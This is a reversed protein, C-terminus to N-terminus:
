RKTYRIIPIILSIIAITCLLVDNFDRFDIIAKLVEFALFAMCVVSIVDSSKQRLVLLGGIIAGFAVIYDLPGLRFISHYHTYIKLIGIGISFIALIAMSIQAMRAKKDSM